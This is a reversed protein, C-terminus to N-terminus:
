SFHGSGPTPEIREARAGFRSLDHVPGRWRSPQLHSATPSGDQLELTAVGELQRKWYELQERLVEGQLWERQWLAFDAYQVTLEPLVSCRGEQYEEYLAILEKVLVGTSWGDSVAHHVCLLLVHHDASLRLLGARWVPGKELDFPRRAEQVAVERAREEREDEALGSVDRVPLTIERVEDIVQM